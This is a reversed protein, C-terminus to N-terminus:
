PQGREDPPRPQPAAVGGSLVWVASAVLWTDALTLGIRQLLGPATGLLSAALCLAAGVGTAVSARAVRPLGAAALPQAALLPTGALAAYGLIAFGGHVAENISSADLPFAAVGLTAVGTSVVAIWAWGPVSARLAVAYVLVGVSFGVLGATMLPRTPAGVAALRSIADDVPSYERRLADGVLWASVFAVPGIIGGLASRPGSM